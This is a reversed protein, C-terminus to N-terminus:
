LAEVVLSNVEKSLDPAYDKVYEAYVQVAKGLPPCLWSGTSHLLHVSRMGDAEEGDIDMVIFGKYSGAVLIKLPRIGLGYRRANRVATLLNITHELVDQDVDVIGTIESDHYQGILRVIEQQAGCVQATIKYQDTDVMTGISMLNNM